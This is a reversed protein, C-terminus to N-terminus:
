AAATTYARGTKWVAWAIRALKNALAVAAKNHGRTRELQLAWARLRDPAPATKTKAHCLVARAGHILLMRLYRDGRKSIAGLRRHHGTSHERPTLGLYSAFHRASPFRNMDGVTAVLATATLLGIGPISRLGSVLPMQEAVADLQHEIARLRADIQRIEQIAEALAPRLLSPVGSDADELVAGVCPVLHRAGVPIVVGFERLLGRVTNIRATRTALGTSRLRHLAAVAQQTDSKVPVPRVEDNRVAELLGKADSRDTKNRLVYPRVTHPPLLVVHHGHVQAQRGWYHASGCAEMLITAPPQEGLYRRFRERSFRHRERVQGPHVSVAVEFVAKAVDVAITTSDM